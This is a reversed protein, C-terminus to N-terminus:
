LYPHVRATATRFVNVLKEKLNIHGFHEWQQSEPGERALFSYVVSEVVIAWYISQYIGSGSNKTKPRM